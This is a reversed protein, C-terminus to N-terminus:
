INLKMANNFCQRWIKSKLHILNEIGQIEKLKHCENFMSSMDDVISTDFSILNLFEIENCAKFMAEMNKVKSTNFKDIGKIEKLKHCGIFMGTMDTVNSTDFNTLDISELENCGNFMGCMQIVEETQPNIFQIQQLSSCDNFIFSLNNMKKEIAFYVTNLGLKNFKKKYILKEKKNNNWIHIKSEIDENVYAGFRGNIIQKEDYDKIEYTCKILSKGNNTKQAKEFNYRGIRSGM